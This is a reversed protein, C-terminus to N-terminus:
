FERSWTLVTIMISPMLCSKGRLYFEPMIPKRENTGKVTVQEVLTETAFVGLSKSPGDSTDAM